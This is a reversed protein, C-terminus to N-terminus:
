ATVLGFSLIRGDADNSGDGAVTQKTAAGITPQSGNASCLAWGRLTPSTQTNPNDWIEILFLSTTQWIDEWFDEDAQRWADIAYSVDKLSQVRETYEDQFRSVDTVTAKLTYSYQTAETITALPWYRGTVTVPGTPPLLFYVIGYLRDLIYDAPDVVVGDAAVTIPAVPDLVQRVLATIQYISATIATTPEDTLAASGQAARVLATKGAYPAM